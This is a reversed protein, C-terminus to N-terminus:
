NKNINDFLTNYYGINRYSKFLDPDVQSTDTHVKSFYKEIAGETGLDAMDKLAEARGADYAKKYQRKDEIYEEFDM